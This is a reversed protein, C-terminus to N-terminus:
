GQSKSLEKLANDIKEESPESICAVLPSEDPVVDDSQYSGPGRLKDDSCSSSCISHEYQVKKNEVDAAYGKTKEDITRHALMTKLVEYLVTAIQVNTVMEEPEKTFEVDRIRTEYFTQYYSLLERVDTRNTHKQTIEEEKRLLNTKFQRVGHGSSTPDITHAKEVAYWRCLFAVRPNEVEIDIAARLIPVVVALSSPVIEADMINEESTSGM